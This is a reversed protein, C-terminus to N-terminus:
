YKSFVTRMLLSCRAATILANTAYRAAFVGADLRVAVAPVAGAARASRVARDHVGRCRASEAGSNRAAAADLVSQDPEAAGRGRQLGAGGMGPAGEAREGGAHRLASRHDVQRGGVPRFLRAG